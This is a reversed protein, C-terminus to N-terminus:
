AAKALGLTPSPVWSKMRMVITLELMSATKQTPLSIQANGDTWRWPKAGQMECGYFGRGFIESAMPVSDGNFRVDAVCVGLRRGDERTPVLQALVGANSVMRVDSAGAPIAFWVRQHAEVTPHIVEGDVVLHLNTEETMQFGMELARDLLRQKVEVLQPGAMVCPAYANEWSQPDLRGHLAVHEGANDFSARNGDDFYSECPLGEALLVDHSELEVHYYDVVDVEQPVITAGNVLCGAPILVGEVYIAHGPSVLLDRVPLQDGFAHARIRIPQVEWPRPHNRVHVRSHGIWTVPRQAGSSTLVIEGVSLNEVAVDGDVGRISTGKAFCPAPAEYGAALADEVFTAGALSNSGTIPGSSFFFRQTPFVGTSEQGAVPALLIASPHNGTAGVYGVVQMQIGDLWPGAGAANGSADLLRVTVLGQESDINSFEVSLASSYAVTGGGGERINYERGAGDDDYVVGATPNGSFQWEAYRVSFNRADYPAAGLQELDFGSVAM